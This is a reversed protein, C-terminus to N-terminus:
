TISARTSTSKLAHLMEVTQAALLLSLTHEPLEDRVAVICVLYRLLMPVITLFGSASCTFKSGELNLRCRDATFMNEISPISRPSTFSLAYTGFESLSSECHNQSLSKFYWGTESDGIGDCIFSHAWDYVTCAVVNLMLRHHLVLTYPNYSFGLVTERAQFANNSLTDKSAYLDTVTARITEDTHLHFETTM